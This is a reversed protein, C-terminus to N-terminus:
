SQCFQAAAALNDWYLEGIWQKSSEDYVAYRANAQIRWRCNSGCKKKPFPCFYGDVPGFGNNNNRPNDWEVMCMYDTVDSVGTTNFTWTESTDVYKWITNPACNILAVYNCENTMEIRPPTIDKHPATPPSLSLNKRLPLPAPAPTATIASKSVMCFLFILLPVFATAMTTTTASKINMEVGVM